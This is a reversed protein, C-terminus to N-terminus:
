RRITNVLGAMDDSFTFARAQFQMQRQTAMLDAMEQGIDVNAAEISKQQIQETAPGIAEAYVGVSEASFQNEGVAELAQPRDVRTIGFTGIAQEGGDALQAVLQGGRWELSSTNAPLTMPEGVENLVRDGNKTVLQLIGGPTESYYFSGDRTLREGAGTEITYFLNPETLAFDLERGTEQLAGQATSLQTQAPKSGTGVRLGHPTLRSENPQNLYESSLVDAFTVSRGKFGPTNANAINNSITDIKKQLQNLTAASAFGSIM